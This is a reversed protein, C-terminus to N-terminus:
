LESTHEESRIGISPLENIENSSENVSLSIHPGDGSTESIFESHKEETNLLKIKPDLVWEIVIAKGFHNQALEIFRQNFQNKAWDLKFRNPAALELVNTSEDFNLAFLPKIWTKFQQPSLEKSFSNTVFEWFSELASNTKISSNILTNTIM